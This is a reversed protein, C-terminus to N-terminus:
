EAPEQYGMLRMSLEVISLGTLNDSVTAQFGEGVELRVDNHFDWYGAVQSTTAGVYPHSDILDMIAGHTKITPAIWGSIAAALTDLMAFTIGNTIAAGTAFRNPDANTGTWRLLIHLGSVVISGEAASPIYQFKKPTSGDVAMSYTTRDNLLSLPFAHNCGAKVIRRTTGQYFHDTGATNPLFTGGIPDGVGPNPRKPFTTM